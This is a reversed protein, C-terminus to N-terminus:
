IKGSDTPRSKANRQGHNRSKFKSPTKSCFRKVTNIKTKKMMTNCFFGTADDCIHKSCTCSAENAQSGDVFTCSSVSSCFELAANCYNDAACNTTGCQCPISNKASGDVSICPSAIIDNLASPSIPQPEVRTVARTTAVNTSTALDKPEPLAASPLIVNPDTESAQVCECFGFIWIM